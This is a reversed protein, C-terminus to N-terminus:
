VEKLKNFNEKLWEGILILSERDILKKINLTNSKKCYNILQEKTFM